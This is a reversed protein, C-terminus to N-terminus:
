MGWLVMRMPLVVKAVYPKVFDGRFRYTFNHSVTTFTFLETLWFKRTQSAM